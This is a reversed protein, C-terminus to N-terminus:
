QPNASIPHNVDQVDGSFAGITPRLLRGGRHCRLGDDGFHWHFMPTSAIQRRSAVGNRGEVGVAMSQKFTPRFQADHCPWFLPKFM